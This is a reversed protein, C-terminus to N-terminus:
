IRRETNSALAAAIQVRLSLFVPSDTVAWLGQDYQLSIEYPLGPPLALNTQTSLNPTTNVYITFGVFPATLIAFRNERTPPVILTPVQVVGLANVIPTVPLQLLQTNPPAGTNTGVPQTNPQRAFQSNAAVDLPGREGFAFSM